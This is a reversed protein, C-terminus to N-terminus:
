SSVFLQIWQQIQLTLREASLSLEAAIEQKKDQPLTLFSAIFDGDLITTTNEPIAIREISDLANRDNNQFKEYHYRYHLHTQSGLQQSLTKHQM